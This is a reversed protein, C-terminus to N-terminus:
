EEDNKLEKYKQLIKFFLFILIVLLISSVALKIYDRKIICIDLYVDLNTIEPNSITKYDKDTFSTVSYKLQEKMENSFGKVKGILVYEKESTYELATSLNEFL